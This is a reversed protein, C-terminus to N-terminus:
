DSLIQLISGSTTDNNWALFLPESGSINHTDVWAGGDVSMSMKKKSFDIKVVVIQGAVVSLGLSCNRTPGYATGGDLNVFCGRSSYISSTRPVSTPAVGLMCTSPRAMVSVPWYHIGSNYGDTSFITGLNSTQTAVKNGQSLIHSNHGFTQWEPKTTWWKPEWDGHAKTWWSPSKQNPKGLGADAEAKERLRKEAEHKDEAEKRAKREKEVEADRKVRLDREKDAEAEARKLDKETNKIIEKLLVDSGQAKAKATEAAEKALEAAHEKSQKFLAESHASAVKFKEFDVQLKMIELM